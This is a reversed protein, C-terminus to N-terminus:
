IITVSGTETIDVGVLLIRDTGPGYHLISDNAGSATFSHGVGPALDIRDTALSFDNIRDIGDGVLFVFTDVGAGTGGSLTDRGTGGNLRDGAGGGNLVDNNAGGSLQDSNAGGFLRDNGAEGLLTDKGDGGELTDGGTGGLARDNGDGLFVHDAGGFTRFVDNGSINLAVGDASTETSLFIDAAANGTYNWGLPLFLNEIASNDAGSKDELIATYLDTAQINFGSVSMQPVGGDLVNVDTVVGGTVVVGTGPVYTWTFGTGIIWYQLSGLQFVLSTSNAGVLSASGTMNDIADYFATPSSPVGPSFTVTPM